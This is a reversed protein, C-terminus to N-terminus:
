NGFNAVVPTRSMHVAVYRTDGKVKRQFRMFGGSAHSKKKNWGRGTHWRPHNVLFLFTSFTLFRDCNVRSNTVILKSFFFFFERFILGEKNDKGRLHNEISIFWTEEKTNTSRQLYFIIFISNVKKGACMKYFSLHTRTWITPAYHQSILIFIKFFIKKEKILYKMSSFQNLFNRYPLSISHSKLNIEFSQKSSLLLSTNKWTPEEAYRTFDSFFEYSTM